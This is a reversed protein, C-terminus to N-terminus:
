LYIIKSLTEQDTIKRWKQGNKIPFPQIRKVDMYEHVYLRLNFEVFCSEADEPMMPRCDSLVGTAIAYGFLDKTDEEKLTAVIRDLNNGAIAKLEWDPYPKLSSCILVRGRHKTPWQRTEQKGHLMLSAFPQKWALAMIPIYDAGGFLNAAKYHGTM